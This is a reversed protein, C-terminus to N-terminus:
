HILWPKEEIEGNRVSKPLWAVGLNGRDVPHDRIRWASQQNNAAFCRRRQTGPRRPRHQRLGLGWRVCFVHRLRSQRGHAGHKRRMSQGHRRVSYPARCRRPPPRRGPQHRRLQCQCAQHLRSRGAGTRRIGAFVVAGPQGAIFPSGAQRSHHHIHVIRGGANRFGDLLRSINGETLPTNRPAGAADRHVLVLM